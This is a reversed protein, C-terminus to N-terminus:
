IEIGAGVIIIYVVVFTIVCGYIVVVWVGVDDGDVVVMGVVVGIVIRIVKNIINWVIIIM